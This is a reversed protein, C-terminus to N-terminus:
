NRSEEVCAYVAGLAVAVAVAVALGGGGIYRRRLRREFVTTVM